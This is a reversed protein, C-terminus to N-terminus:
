GREGEGADGSQCGGADYYSPTPFFRGLVLGSCLVSPVHPTPLVETQQVTFLYVVFLSLGSSTM